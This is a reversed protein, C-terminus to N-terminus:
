LRKGEAAPPIVATEARVLAVPFPRRRLQFLSSKVGNERVRDPRSFSTIPALNKGNGRFNVLVAILEFLANLRAVFVSNLNVDPFYVEIKFM